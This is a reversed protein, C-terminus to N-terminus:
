PTIVITAVTYTTALGSPTTVTVTLPGSITKDKEGEVTVSFTSGGNKTTNPWSYTDIGKTSGVAAEFKVESGAPMPQNHFDSITVSASGTGDSVININDGNVPYNTVFRPNSGSMVLVVSGRVNISKDVSCNDADGCLSGNYQNDKLDFDGSTNFDDFTEAEGGTEGDGASEQPNYIGDENYDVFSENLDYYMGNIDLGTQGNDGLFADKEALDYQGNGNLDPFSEEGIASASITARGGYKQGMFNTTQPSSSNVRSPFTTGDSIGLQAITTSTGGGDTIKVDLRTSSTLLLYSAGAYVFESASVSSTSLSANITALLVSTSVYNANLNVTDTGDVTEVDFIIDNATFDGGGSIDVIGLVQTANNYYNTGDAIGLVDLTTVTGVSVDTITIDLGDVSIFELIEEFGSAAMVSSNTLSTNIETLLEAKTSYSSSLSVNDTGNSTIVNFRIAKSTFDFGQSIDTSGKVLTPGNNVEGLEQGEPRVNQSTWIVSCVGNSTTCSDGISGGETTFSVATGDPVPNNFADALRATITVETGDINWAEPNFVSASLSFSDQDPIGTSIVLLSSQTFISTDDDLEARVRVSTHITGSNIVTQVLGNSDTKANVPSIGIGGVDTSLSFSVDKNPAVNGNEDRLRFIITSNEIGGVGQLSINEPTASVFEISGANAIGVNLTGTASLPNGGANATATIVDDNQCGQALYTSQVVGNITSVPSDITATPTALGSCRSSFSIEVTETTFITAPTGPTANSIDWVNITLGATAGASISNSSLEILGNPLGTAIDIAYGLGLASAGISFVLQETEGSALQATVTGAGLSNGALLDVTAVYGSGSTAIATQIPISGLDSSFTVIVAETVGTVTAVLKGPSISSIQEVENGATDTLVLTINIGSGVGDGSSTFGVSDSEGTTTVASVVGAGEVTGATLIITAIGNVNTIATGIAPDLNGLTTTFSVVEGMVAAGNEIVTASLTAPAVDSVTTASITLAITKTPVVIVEDGSTAFGISDSEGTTTVASVVGAGEVTGATLIITAIGNVNTIATGIAPDLNGLTTTFSVVEGAVASGNEIVTANLTAPSSNSVTSSSTTLTVTKTPAIIVEDGLTAFGISDSEGTTTVVNVVGAGEVTGATLTITAIGNVNTIATGIAPALNGLTTTFSVVEGAVASGNEIVTANLTAPSSNSVTSSSTTLTVTKTPAIIVEDGLTAFGISDSEGTTTVVNVVGAGEVTGATLLVTAIGNANTIATGIAPDLNGLTTTFSVVEGVVAVGDEIVTASLTAPTANSVSSGGDAIVIDLQVAKGELAADGASTFGIPSSIVGLVEATVSGAGEVDGPHIEITAVGNIDTLASGSAPDLAGLSTSFTVVEGVVVVGDTLVTATIVAPNDSRVDTHDISLEVTTVSTNGGGNGNGSLDGDGGGCAVLTILTMFLLTSRLRRLLEM